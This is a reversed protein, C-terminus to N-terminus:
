AFRGKIFDVVSIKRFILCCGGVSWFISQISVAFCSLGSTCLIKNMDSDKKINLIGKM